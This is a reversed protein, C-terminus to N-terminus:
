TLTQEIEDYGYFDTYVVEKNKKDDFDAYQVCFIEDDVSENTDVIVFYDMDWYSYLEYRENLVITEGREMQDLTDRDIQKLAKDLINM